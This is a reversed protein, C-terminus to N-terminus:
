DKARNRWPPSPNFRRTRFMSKTIFSRCREPRFLSPKLPIYSHSLLNTIILIWTPEQYIILSDLGVVGDTSSPCRKSPPQLLTLSYLHGRQAPFSSFYILVLLFPTLRHLGPGAQNYRFSHIRYVLWCCRRQHDISLVCYPPRYVGSESFTM